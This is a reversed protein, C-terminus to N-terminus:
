AFDKLLRKFDEPKANAARAAILAVRNAARDEADIAELFTEIQRLTYEQVDAMSHGAGIM